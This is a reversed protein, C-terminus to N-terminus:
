ADSLEVHHTLMFHVTEGNRQGINVALKDLSRGAAVTEAALIDGLVEARNVADGKGYRFVSRGAELDAALDIQGFGSELLQISFPLVFAQRKEGVGAIGSGTRHALEVRADSGFAIQIDIDIHEAVGFTFCHGRGVPFRQFIESRKSEPNVGGVFPDLM